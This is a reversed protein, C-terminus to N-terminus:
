EVSGMEPPPLKGKRLKFRLDPLLRTENDAILSEAEARDAATCNECARAIAQDFILGVSYAGWFHGDCALDGALAHGEPCPVHIHTCALAQPSMQESHDQEYAKLDRLQPVRACDSHRAEHVLTDLRGIRGTETGLYAPGVAVFGTRPSSLEIRDEGFTAYEPLAHRRKRKGQYRTRFIWDLFSPGYNQAMVNGEVEESADPVGLYRIREELFRIVAHQDTGGFLKEFWSGKAERIQFRRLDALDGEITQVLPAPLRARDIEFAHAPASTWILALAIWM